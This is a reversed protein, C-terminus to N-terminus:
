DGHIQAQGSLGPRSMENRLIVAQNNLYYAQRQLEDLTSARDHLTASYDMYRSRNAMLEELCRGAVYMELIELVKDDDLLTGDSDLEAQKQEIWMRVSLNETLTKNLVLRDGLHRWQLMQKYSGDSQLVELKKVISGTPYTVGTPLGFEKYGSLLTNTRPVLTWIGGQVAWQIGKNILRNLHVDTWGWSPYVTATAGNSAAAATTGRYGRMVTATLSSLSLVRMVENGVQILSGEVVSTAAALDVGTETTDLDETITTILEPWANLKDRVATRIDTRYKAM